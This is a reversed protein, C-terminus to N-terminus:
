GNIYKFIERAADKEEIVEISNAKSRAIKVASLIKDYRELMEAKEKPSVRGTKNVTTYEGAPTTVKKDRPELKFKVEATPNPNFSETIVDTRTRVTKIEQQAYCADGDMNVGTTWHVETSFTPISAYLRRLDTLRKELQLLASVPVNKAITAEVNGEDDFIVIDMSAIQNTKEKSIMTNLSKILSGATYKIRAKVTTTMKKQSTEPIDKDDDQYAQYTKTFEDFKDSTGFVKLSENFILAAKNNVDSEFALLEHQKM